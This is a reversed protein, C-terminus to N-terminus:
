VARRESLADLVECQAAPRGRCGDAMRRLEARLTRLQAIKRDVSALQERAIRDADDCPKEPDDTLTLLARVDEVPFGLERAHKIFELRRFAAEGYLRWSGESRAPPRLLGIQEYFRITPRKVGIARALDGITGERDRM